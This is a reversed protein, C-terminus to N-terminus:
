PYIISTLNVQGHILLFSQKFLGTTIHFVQAGSGIRYGDTPGLSPGQSIAGTTPNYLSTRTPFTGDQGHLLWIQDKSPGIPFTYYTAGANVNSTLTGSVSFTHTSPDYLNTTNTNNGLIVLVKGSHIGSNIPMAFAGVGPAATTTPATGFTNTSPDYMRGGFLTYYITKGAHTGPSVTFLFSAPGTSAGGLAPGASFTNSTPDYISTTLTGGGLVVMFRGSQSGSTIAFYAGGSGLNASLTPGVQVTNDLPNYISSTNTGGGHAILLRGTLSGSPIVFSFAGSGQSATLSPGVSFTGSAPDFVSSDSGSTFLIIKNQNPGSPIVYSLTSSVPSTPFSSPEIEGKIPDYITTAIGTNFTLYKGDQIGGQILITQIPIAFFSVDNTFTNNVPNYIVLRSGTPMCPIIGIKGAHVGTSFNISHTFSATSNISFPFNPGVSFTSTSSNFIRTASTNGAILILVSSDSIQVVAGGKGMSIGLNPGATFTNTSPDYYNTTTNGGHIVLTKGANVGTQVKFSTTGEGIAGILNPGITFSNSNPNYIQTSNYSIGQILIVNGLQTGSEVLFSHSEEALNTVLNPGQIITNNAPDYISTVLTSTTYILVKGSHIGSKIYFYGTGRVQAGNVMSLNPGVSFSNTIPDYLNTATTGAVILAKGKGTGELIPIVVGGNIGLETKYTPTSTLNCNGVGTCFPITDFGNGMIYDSSLSKGSTSKVETTVKLQIRSFPALIPNSYFTFSKNDTTLINSRLRLCTQFSDTSLQISGSCTTNTSNLIISAKNIEESFSIQITRDSKVEKENDQPSVSLIQLSNSTRNQNFISILIGALLNFSSSTPKNLDFPVRKATFCFSQFLLIILFLIQTKIM